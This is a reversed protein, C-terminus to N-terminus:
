DLRQRQSHAACFLCYFTGYMGTFLLGSNVGMKALGLRSDVRKPLAGILVDWM